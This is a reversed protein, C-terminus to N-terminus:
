SVVALVSQLWIRRGRELKELQEFNLLQIQSCLFKATWSFRQGRERKEGIEPVRMERDQSLASAIKLVSVLVVWRLEKSFNSFLFRLPWSREHGFVFVLFVKRIRGLYGLLRSPLPNGCEIRFWFGRPEKGAGLALRALWAVVLFGCVLWARGPGPFRSASGM